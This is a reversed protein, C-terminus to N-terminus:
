DISTSDECPDEGETYTDFLKNLETLLEEAQIKDKEPLEEWELSDSM